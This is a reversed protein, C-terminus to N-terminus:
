ILDKLECNLLACLKYTQEFTLRPTREGNEWRWVVNGSFGLRISLENPTFEAKERLKKFREINFTSM